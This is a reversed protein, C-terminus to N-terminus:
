LTCGGAYACGITSFFLAHEGEYGGSGQEVTEIEQDGGDDMMTMILTSSAQSGPYFIAGNGNEAAGYDFFIHITNALPWTGDVSGDCCWRNVTWEATDGVIGPTPISYASYNWNTTDEVFVYANTSPGYAKVETYFVDGPNLTFETNYLGWGTYAYYVAQGYCNVDELVGGQLGAAYANDPSVSTTLYGDIGASSLQLTDSDTCGSDFALQATPVSIETYIDNFSGKGWSKQKNTLMVGSANLTQGQVPGTNSHVADPLPSRGPRHMGQGGGPLSKLEGNWRIRAARMAREWLAYHDPNAQKDPRTPFGYTALEEDTAAVPDFDKPPEAYTHIGPINTPVNAASAYIAAAADSEAKAFTSVSLLLSGTFVLIALKAFKSQTKM